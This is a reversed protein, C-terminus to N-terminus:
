VVRYGTDHIEVRHRGFRAHCGDRSLEPRSATDVLGRWRPARALVIVRGLQDDREGVGSSGSLNFNIIADLGPALVIFHQWEKFPARTAAPSRMRWFDDRAPDLPTAMPTMAAAGPPGAPRRGGPVAREPRAPRAPRARRARRATRRAARAAMP